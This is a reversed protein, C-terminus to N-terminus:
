FFKLFITPVYQKNCKNCTVTQSFGCVGKFVVGYSLKNLCKKCEKM